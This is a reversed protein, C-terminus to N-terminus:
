QLVAMDIWKSVTQPQKLTVVAFDFLLSVTQGVFDLM